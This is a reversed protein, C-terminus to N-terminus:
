QFLDGEYHLAADHYLLLLLIRNQPALIVARGMLHGKKILDRVLGATAITKEPPISPEEPCVGDPLM